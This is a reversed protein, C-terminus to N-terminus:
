YPLWSDTRIDYRGRGFGVPADTTQTLPMEVLRDRMLERLGEAAFAVVAGNPQQQYEPALRLALNYAIADDAEPPSPMTDSPNSVDSWGMAMGNAEWRRCMGNLAMIATDSDEAEPSENPDLVNILRLARRTIDSVTSM